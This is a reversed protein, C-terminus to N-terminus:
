APRVIEGETVVAQMAIDHPQSFIIAIEQEAYSVCTPPRAKVTKPM